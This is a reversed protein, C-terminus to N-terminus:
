YSKIYTVGHGLFIYIIYDINYFLNEISEYKEATIVAKLRLFLEFFKELVNGNITKVGYIIQFDKLCKQNYLCFRNYIEWSMTVYHVEINRKLMKQFVPFAESPEIDEDFFDSLLYHTKPYLYGYFSGKKYVFIINIM